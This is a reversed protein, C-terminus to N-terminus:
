QLPYRRGVMTCLRVSCSPEPRFRRRAPQLLMKGLCDGPMLLYCCRDFADSGRRPTPVLYRDRSLAGPPRTSMSGITPRSSTAQSPM